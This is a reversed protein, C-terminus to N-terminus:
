AAENFGTQLWANASDWYALFLLEENTPLLKENLEDVYSVHLQLYRTLDLKNSQDVVAMLWLMQIEEHSKMRPPHFQKM